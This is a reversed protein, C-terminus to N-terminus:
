PYVIFSRTSFDYFDRRDRDDLDEYYYLFTRLNFSYFYTVTDYDYLRDNTYLTDRAEFDYFYDGDGGDDGLYYIYGFGYKFIYNQGGFYFGLYYYGFDPSYYVDNGLNVQDQFFFPDIAQARPAHSAGVLLLALTAALLPKPLNM